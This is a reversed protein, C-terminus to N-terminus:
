WVLATDRMGQSPGDTPPAQGAARWRRACVAAASFAAWLAGWYVFPEIRGIGFVNRGGLMLVLGAIFWVNATVFYFGGSDTLPAPQPPNGRKAQPHGSHSAILVVALGALMALILYAM